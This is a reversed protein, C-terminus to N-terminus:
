NLTRGENTADLALAELLKLAALNVLAAAAQASANISYVKVHQGKADTLLLVASNANDEGSLCGELRDCLHEFYEEASEFDM